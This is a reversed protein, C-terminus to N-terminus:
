PTSPAAYTWTLFRAESVATAPLLFECGASTAAVRVDLACLTGSTTAVVAYDNAEVTAAVAAPAEAVGRAAISTPTSASEAFVVQAQSTGFAIAGPGGGVFLRTAAAFAPRTTTTADPAFGRIEPDGTPPDVLAWWTGRSVALDLLADDGPVVAQVGTPGVPDAFRRTQLARDGGLAVRVTTFTAPDTVGARIGVADYPFPESWSAVVGDVLDVVHIRGDGVADVDDCLDWLAVYRTPNTAPGGVVIQRPCVPGLYAGPTLDAAWARAGDTLALPAGSRPVTTGPDDELDALDFRQLAANAGTADSTLVWAASPVGERPTADLAVLTTGADFAFATPAVLRLARSTTTLDVAVLALSPPTTTRAVVLLTPLAPTTTGTCAGALLAVAMAAAVARAVRVARGRAAARAAAGPRDRVGRLPRDRRGSRDARHAGLRDRRGVGGGVGLLLSGVRLVGGTAGDVAFAGRRHRHLEWVDTLRAGVLWEDSARVALTLDEISLTSRAYAGATADWTGQYGLRGQLGIREWADAGLTVAARRLYTDDLVADALSWEALGELSLAVPGIQEQVLALRLEFRTDRRGGSEELAPDLTTRWTAEWRPATREPADALRVSVARASPEPAGHGLWAPPLWVIGRADLTAVGSWTAQIRADAVVPTPLAIRERLELALPGVDARALVTLETVQLETLDLRADLQLGPRADGAQLSGLSASARGDSWTPLGEADAAVHTADLTLTAVRALAARWALTTRGEDIVPPGLDAELDIVHTISTRVEADGSRGQIGLRATLAGPDDDAIPWRHALSADLWSRDQFLTLSSNLPQWGVTEPRRADSFVYGGDSAVAIWPAFRVSLRATAETRARPSAADFRFPTEGEEVERLFALGLQGADGFRQDLGVRTRWTIAREGTGHYRGEFANDAELRAGAWLAVPDLRVTHSALARGGTVIGLSAAARNAPNAVDEFVGLDLAAATVQLRSLRWASTELPELRLRVGTRRPVTRGAYAPPTTPDVDPDTDVFGQADVAGRAGSGTGVLSARYTWRGSTTADDRALELDIAPSPGDPETAYAARVTWTGPSEARTPDTADPGRGPDFAVRLAATGLLDYARHDLEFGFADAEVAGGLLRGALGTDRSPDVEALYRVTFTGLAADGAVYPWRVRVEARESATGTRVLLQPQRDGTALPLVLVPLHFLDVGRVVVIADFAVLRDGPYLVMRAARFGYDPVDQDCRTCPSAFANAFTVQGPLREALAGEVDIASTFVIADIARVREELLDVELDQGEVREEGRVFAGPGIVRVIRGAVDIELRQGEIAVDDVVVSVSTGSLVILEAETGDPLTYTRLELRANPDAGTDVTLTAASATGALVVCALLAALWRRASGPVGPASM